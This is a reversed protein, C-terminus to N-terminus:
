SRCAGRQTIRSRSTWSGGCGTAAVGALLSPHQALLAQLVDETDYPRETMEVLREDGDLLYIGTAEHVSACSAVFAAAPQQTVPAEDPWGSCDEARAGTLAADSCRQSATFPASPM